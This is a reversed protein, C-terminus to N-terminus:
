GCTGTPKHGRNGKPFPKTLFIDNVKMGANLMGEIFKRGPNRTGQLVRFLYSHSIGMKAAMEQESLCHLTMFNKIASLNIENM